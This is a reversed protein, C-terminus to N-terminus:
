PVIFQSVNDLSNAQSLFEKFFLSLFFFYRLSASPGVSWLPRGDMRRKM